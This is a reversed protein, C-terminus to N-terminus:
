LASLKALVRILKILAFLITIPMTLMKSILSTRTKLKRYYITLINARKKHGQKCSLNLWNLSLEISKEGGEGHFYCNGLNYQAFKNANQAAIEYLRRAEKLDKKIGYREHYFNGLRNISLLDGNEVLKIYWGMAQKYEKNDYYSDALKRQADPNGIEAQGLLNGNSLENALVTNYSM